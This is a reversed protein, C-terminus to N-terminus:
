GSVAFKTTRHSFVTLSPPSVWRGCGQYTSSLIFEEHGLCKAATEIHGLYIDATSINKVHSPRLLDLVMIVNQFFICLFWIPVKSIKKM